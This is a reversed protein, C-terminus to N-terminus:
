FKLKCVKLVYIPPINKININETIKLYIDKKQVTTTQILYSM